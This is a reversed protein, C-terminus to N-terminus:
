CTARRGAASRTSSAGRWARGQGRRRDGEDRLREVFGREELRSVLSTMAPQTVREIEALKTIRRPGGDRLTALLSVSTRSLESTQSLLLRFLRALRPALEAALEASDTSPQRRPQSVYGPYM